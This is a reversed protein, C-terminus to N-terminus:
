KIIQDAYFDNGIASAISVDMGWKAMLFAGNAAPGGGCEIHHELRYKVNETPYEDVPLTTDYTSHGVCIVKM